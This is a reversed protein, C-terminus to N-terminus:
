RRSRALFVNYGEQMAAIAREIGMARLRAQIAPIESLPIRGNILSAMQEDIFTDIDPMVQAITAQNAASHPFSPLARSIDHNDPHSWTFIADQAIPHQGHRFTDYLRLSPYSSSAGFNRLFRDENGLAFFAETYTPQDGVWTWDTGEVGYNTIIAGEDSFIFDWFNAIKWPELAQSSIAISSGAAIFERYDNHFVYPPSNATRRLWPIGQAHFTNGAAVSEAMNNSVMTPQPAFNFGVRDNMFNGDLQARTQAVYDPDILDDMYLMHLYAMADAFEPRLPGYQIQGDIQFFRFHIGFPFFLQGIDFTNGTGLTMGSMGWVPQGGIEADRFAILTQHLDDITRPVPLRLIDLWDGRIVPGMWVGLEIEKRVEPIFFINDENFTITAWGNRDFMIQSFNPM